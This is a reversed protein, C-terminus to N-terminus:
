WVKIDKSDEKPFIYSLWSEDNHITHCIKPSPSGKQVGEGM